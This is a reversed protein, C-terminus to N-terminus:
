LVAAILQLTLADRRHDYPEHRETAVEGYRPPHVNSPAGTMVVGDIRELLGDLDLALDMAPIMVPMCRAVTAVAHLYKDGISHFLFGKDGFTDSPLGVLPKPDNLASMM